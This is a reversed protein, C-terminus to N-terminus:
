MTRPQSCLAERLSCALYRPPRLRRGRRGSVAGALFSLIKAARCIATGFRSALSALFFAHIDADVDLRTSLLTEARWSIAFLADVEAGAEEERRKRDTKLSVRIACGLRRILAQYNALDRHASVREDILRWTTESILPNKRAEWARPKTEDRRLAAFTTDERTDKTPPRLPPNKSGGLYRAHEKLYASHLCGLVMYRM